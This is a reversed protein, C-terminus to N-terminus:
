DHGDRVWVILSQAVCTDIMTDGSFQCLQTNTFATSEGGIFFLM